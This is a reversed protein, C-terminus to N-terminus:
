STMGQRFDKARRSKLKFRANIDAPFNLPPRHIKIRRKLKSSQYYKPKCYQCSIVLEGTQSHRRVRLNTSYPFSKGCIECLKRSKSLKSYNEISRFSDPKTLNPDPVARTSEQSGNRSKPNCESLPPKQLSIYQPKSSLHDRHRHPSAVAADAMNSATLDVFKTPIEVSNETNSKSPSIRNPPSTSFIPKSSQSALQRLRASYDCRALSSLLDLSYMGYVQDSKPFTESQTSLVEPVQSSPNYAPDIPNACVTAATLESFAPLQGTALNYPFFRPNPTDQQMHRQQYTLFEHPNRSSAAKLWESLFHYGAPASPRVEHAKEPGNVDPTSQKATSSRELPSPQESRTGFIFTIMAMKQVIWVRIQTQMLTILKISVFNIFRQMTM